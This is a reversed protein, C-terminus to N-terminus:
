STGLARLLPQWTAADRARELPARADYPLASSREDDSLPEETAQQRDLVAFDAESADTAARHRAAIRARLTPDSATFDLLAFPLGAAAARARALDRQWRRLFTGDVVAVHGASAVAVALALARDYTARTAADTYLGEGVGSASRSTADLGALRKREVDTRVRIAGTREVLGETVATKGSGSLGHTVVLGPRPPRTADRALDLYSRYRALTEDRAAGPGLQAARLRRVKARVMARYTFYFRLVAVGDYDGSIELWRDLYRWGLDPRGRDALDMTTFAVESMVDIWRLRDNFEICDFVVLRGDIVAINGLHLDGHCERVFGARRRSEFVALRQAHEAETWARLAGLEAREADDAALPLIAAFNDLAQTRIEAATGYPGAPDAVAIRRHFAAAIAALADVDAADFAGRALAHSALAEQPFERMKVAYELPPGDGGLVPRDPTGGIAVVELYLEPALRRNLALELECYRRRLDLTSFDVFGLNVPKKLKYAYRGTLLVDSIHTEILDVRETGAGFVAPDRLAAVLRRYDDAPRQPDSTMREM